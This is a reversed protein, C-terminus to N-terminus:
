RYIRACPLIRGFFNQSEDKAIGVAKGCFFILVQAMIGYVRRCTLIGNRKTEAYKEGETSMM